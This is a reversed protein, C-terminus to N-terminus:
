PNLRPNKASRASWELFSLVVLAIVVVPTSIMWILGTLNGDLSASYIEFALIAGAIISLAVALWRRWSSAVFALLLSAVFPIAGVLLAFGHKVLFAFFDAM